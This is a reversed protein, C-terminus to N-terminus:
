LGPIKLLPNDKPQVPAEDTTEPNAQIEDSEMPFYSPDIDFIKEMVRGAFVKLDHHELMLATHHLLSCLFERRPTIDEPIMEEITVLVYLGIRADHELDNPSGPHNDTFRKVSAMVLNFAKELYTDGGDTFHDPAASNEGSDSEQM